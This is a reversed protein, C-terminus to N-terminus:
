KNQMAFLIQKMLRHEIILLVYQSTIALRLNSVHFSFCMQIAYNMSYCCFSFRSLSFCLTSRLARWWRKYTAEALAPWSVRWTRRCLICCLVRTSCKTCCRPLQKSSGTTKRLLRRSGRTTVSSTARTSGETRSSTTRPRQSATPSRCM